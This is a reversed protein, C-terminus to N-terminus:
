RSADVIAQKAVHEQLLAEALAAAKEDDLNKTLESVRRLATATLRLQREMNSNVLTHTDVAVKKLGALQTDTAATSAQLTTRVEETKTIAAVSEAKRNADASDVAQKTRLQMISVVIIGVATVVSAMSGFFSIWFTDSM